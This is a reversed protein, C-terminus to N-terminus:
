MAFSFTGEVLRSMGVEFHSSLCHLLLLFDYSPLQSGALIYNFNKLHLIISTVSM